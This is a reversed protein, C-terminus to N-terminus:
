KKTRIRIKSAAQMCVDHVPRVIEGADTLVTKTHARAVDELVSAQERTGFEGLYRCAQEKYWVNDITLADAVEKEAGACRRPELANAVIVARGLADEFSMAKVFEACNDDKMTKVFTFTAELSYGFADKCAGEDFKRGESAIFRKFASSTAGGEADVTALAKSGVRGSACTFLEKEKKCEVFRKVLAASVATREKESFAPRDFSLKQQFSSLGDCSAAAIEGKAADVGRKAVVECIRSRDEDVIKFQSPKTCMEALEAPDNKALAEDARERSHEQPTGAIAGVIAGCGTTFVVAIIGISAKGISM